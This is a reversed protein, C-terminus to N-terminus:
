QTQTEIIRTAEDRSLHGLQTVAIEAQRNGNDAALVLYARAIDHQKADSANGLMLMALRYQAVPDGDNAAGRLYDMGLKRKEDSMASQFLYYSALVTRANSVGEMAKQQLFTTIKEAVPEPATELLQGLAEYADLEEREAALFFLDSADVASQPGATSAMRRGLVLAARGNGKEILPQLWDQLGGEGAYGLDAIQKYLDASDLDGKPDLADAQRLWMLASEPEERGPQLMAKSIQLMKRARQDIPVKALMRKAQGTNRPVGWGLAYALAANKSASVNGKTSGRAYWSPAESPRAPGGIGYQLMMGYANAAASSGMLAEARLSARLATSSSFPRPGIKVIAKAAERVAERDGRLAAPVVKRLTVEPRVEVAHAVPGPLAQAAALGLLLVLAPGWGGGRRAPRRRSGMGHSIGKSSSAM